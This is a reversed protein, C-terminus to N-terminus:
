EDQMCKITCKYQFVRKLTLSVKHGEIVRPSASTRSITYEKSEAQLYQRMLCQICSHKTGIKQIIAFIHRRHNQSLCISKAQRELDIVYICYSTITLIDHSM